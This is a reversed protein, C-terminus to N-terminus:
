KKINGRIKQAKEMAQVTDEIHEQMIQRARDADKNEIAKIIGSHYHCANMSGMVAVIDRFASYMLGRMINMMHVLYSNRTCEAIIFHFLIDQETARVTDHLFKRLGELTQYLRAVDQESARTAALAASEVELIRRLELLELISPEEPLGSSIILNM